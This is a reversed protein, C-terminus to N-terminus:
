VKVKGVAEDMALAQKSLRDSMNAIEKFVASQERTLSYIDDSHDSVDSSIRSIASVSAAAEESGASIEEAVSSIQQIRDAVLRFADVAHSFATESEAALTVGQGIEGATKHMREGIQQSEEQIGLLLQSIREVSFSSAEALKRVEGAVVAFGQGHEGAHAAEISANLALLKTQAAFDKVSDLAAVIENSYGNLTRVKADVENAAVSIQEMQEKMQTMSQKGAQANVLSGAAADAVSTSSESIDAIGKAIEDMARAGDEAGQKQSHAGHRIQEVSGDVTKGLKLMDEAEKRFQETSQTLMTTTAAVNSVMDSVIGNLNESMHIMSKYTTGIEDHSRLRYAKLTQAAEALEGRAMKEVSAQLPALPRLGKAIFWVVAAIGLLTIALLLAYLPLSSKIIGSEIAQIDEVSTDIGIVGQLSGNAGIIPAYSSLYNGYEKNEIISSSASRGQLLEQVAEEPIDTVENISSALVPDKIGDVMILPTGKEDIKVFYVYMAGIRQRFQDLEDRIALFDDNEKPDKAFAAYVDVNLQSAYSEAIQINYSSIAKQAALKMNALQLLLSGASIVLIVLTVLTTIRVVLRQRFLRIM